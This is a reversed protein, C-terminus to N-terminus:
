LFDHGQYYNTGLSLIVPTSTKFSDKQIPKGVLDPDVFNAYYALGGKIKMEKIEIKSLDDPSNVYPLCDARLLKKLFQPDAFESKNKEFISVLCQANRGSPPVIRYTDFPFSSAPSRDKASQWHDPAVVFIPETASIHLDDAQAFGSVLLISLLITSTKM